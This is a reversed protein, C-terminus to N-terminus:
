RASSSLRLDLFELAPGVSGSIGIFQKFAAAFHQVFGENGEDLLGDAPAHPGAKIQAVGQVPGFKIKRGALLANFRYQELKQHVMAANPDTLCCVATGASRFCLASPGTCM